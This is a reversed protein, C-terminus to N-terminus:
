FKVEVEVGYTRPEAIRAGVTGLVTKGHTGLSNVHDFLNRGYVAWTGHGLASTWAIRAHGLLIRVTVCTPAV